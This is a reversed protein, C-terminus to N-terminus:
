EATIGGKEDGKLKTIGGSTSDNMVLYFGSSSNWYDKIIWLDKPAGQQELTSQLQKQLWKKNPWMGRKQYYSKLSFKVVSVISRGSQQSVNELARKALTLQSLLQQAKSIREPKSFNLEIVNQLLGEAKAVYEDRKFSNLNHDGLKAMLYQVEHMLLGYNLEDSALRTWEEAGAEPFDVLIGFTSQADDFRNDLKASIGDQYKDKAALAASDALAKNHAADQDVAMSEISIFMLFLVLLKRM